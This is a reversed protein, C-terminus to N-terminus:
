RCFFELRYVLTLLLRDEMGSYSNRLTPALKKHVEVIAAVQEPAHGDCGGWVILAKRTM